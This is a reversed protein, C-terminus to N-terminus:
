CIFIIVIYVSYSGPFLRYSIGVQNQLYAARNVDTMSSFVKLKQLQQLSKLAAEKENLLHKNELEEQAGM